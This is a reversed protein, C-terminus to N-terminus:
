VRIRIKAVGIEILMSTNMMLMAKGILFSSLEAGLCHARGRSFNLMVMCVKLM